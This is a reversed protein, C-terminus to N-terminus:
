LLDVGKDDAFACAAESRGLYLILNPQPAHLVGVDKQVVAEDAVGISKRADLAELHAVRM